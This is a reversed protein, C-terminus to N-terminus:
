NGLLGKKNELYYILEQYNQNEFLIGYIIDCIPMSLHKFTILEHISLATGIGEVTTTNQYELITQKDSGSGILQGMSYNRSKSSTCTMFYDDIGAYSMVTKQSGGLKDIFDLIEYLAETLYLFRSSEPFGAGDLIGYGIAIINKIAGCIAVGILDSSDQIKLYKSELASHVVERVRESGTALTLGMVKDGTMDKAFTGGSIVGIDDTDICNLVIEYGFLHHVTDIGKSAVLIKEGHYFEKMAVMTSEIFEVPIAVVILDSNVIVNRMDTDFCIQSYDDRLGDVEKEFKSWMFIDVDNLAFMKALAMGYAGCGLISIKM